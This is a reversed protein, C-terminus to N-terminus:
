AVRAGVIAVRVLSSAIMFSNGVESNVVTEIYADVQSTVTRGSYRGV